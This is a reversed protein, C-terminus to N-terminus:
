DDYDTGLRNSITKVAADIKRITKSIDLIHIQLDIIEEQLKVIRDTTTKKSPTKKKEPM